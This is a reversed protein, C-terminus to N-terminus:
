FHTSSLCQFLKLKKMYVYLIHPDTFTNISESVLSFHPAHLCVTISVRKQLILKVCKASLSTATQCLLYPWIHGLYHCVDQIHCNEPINRRTTEYFNVSTESTRVAELLLTIDTEGTMSVFRTGKEFPVGSCLIQMHRQDM